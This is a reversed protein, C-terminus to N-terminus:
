SKVPVWLEFGGQGTRGDFKEGYREFAPGDSAQHGADTIGHNWIASWTAGISSVHDAHEFVAYTQPPIRLRAFEEPEAPFESVHVGCIYEFSGTDDPNCIVGFTDKGVQNQITGLYPVFRDWQLPIAANTRHRQGLGFILLARERVIRPSALATKHTDNMRIPEMLDLGETTGRERLQEPTIGFHQRFARTFAEHSGYGSDLALALIDPAGNGLERASESLRRGRVYLALACGVTVGFARSLHYRSVGVVEAIADLSLDGSLHSEIYWLAKSTVSVVAMM